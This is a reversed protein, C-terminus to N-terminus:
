PRRGWGVTHPRNLRQDAAEPEGWKDARTRRHFRSTPRPAPREPASVRDPVPPSSKTAREWVGEFYMLVIPGGQEAQGVLRVYTIDPGAIIRDTKLDSREAWKDLGDLGPDSANLETLIEDVCADAILVETTPRSTM